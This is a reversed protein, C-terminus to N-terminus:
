LRDVMSVFDGCIRAVDRDGAKLVADEVARRCDRILPVSESTCGAPDAGYSLMMRIMPTHWKRAVLHGDICKIANSETASAGHELLLRVVSSRNNTAACTTATWERTWERSGLADIKAGLELLARVTGEHGNSAAAMLPTYGNMNSQELDAGHAALQRIVSTHGKTAAFKVATSSDNDMIDTAAGSSLLLKVISENGLFAAHSLATCGGWDSEDVDRVLLLERVSEIDGHKAAKPLTDM